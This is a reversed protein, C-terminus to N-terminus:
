LLLLACQAAYQLITFIIILKILTAECMYSFEDSFRSTPTM